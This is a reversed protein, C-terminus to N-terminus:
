KDDRGAALIAAAFFGIAGGVLICLFYIMENGGREMKRMKGTQVPRKGQNGPVEGGLFVRVKGPRKRAYGKRKRKKRAGANQNRVM